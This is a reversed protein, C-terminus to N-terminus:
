QPMPYERLNAFNEACISELMQGRNIRHWRVTRSKLQAAETRWTM